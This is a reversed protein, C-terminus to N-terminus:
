RATGQLKRLVKIKERADDFLALPYSIQKLKGEADAWNSQAILDMAEAYHRLVPDLNAPLFSEIVKRKLLIDRQMPELDAVSTPQVNFLELLTARIGDDIQGLASVPYAGVDTKSSNGPDNLADIQGQLATAIGYADQWSKKELAGLLKLYEETVLREQDRTKGEALSTNIAGIKSLTDNVFGRLMTLVVGRHKSLNNDYVPFALSEVWLNRAELLKGENFANAAPTYKEKFLNTLKKKYSGPLPVRYFKEQEAILKQYDELTWAQSPLKEVSGSSFPARNNLIKIEDAGPERDAKFDLRRELINKEEPTLGALGQVPPAAPKQPQQAGDKKTVAAKSEEAPVQIDQTERPAPAPLIKKLFPFALAAIGIGLILVAALKLFPPIVLPGRPSKKESSDSLRSEAVDEEKKVSTSWFCGPCELIDKEESEFKKGCHTCVYRATKM